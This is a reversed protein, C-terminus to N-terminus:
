DDWLLAKGRQVDADGSNSLVEEYVQRFGQEILERVVRQYAEDALEENAFREVVRVVPEADLLRVARKITLKPRERRYTEIQCQGRDMRVSASRGFPEVFDRRELGGVRREKLFRCYNAEADVEVYEDLQREIEREEGFGLQVASVMAEDVSGERAALQQLVAGSASAAIELVLARHEPFSGGEIAGRGFAVLEPWLLELVISALVLRRNREADHSFVIPYVSSTHQGGGVLEDFVPALDLVMERRGFVRARRLGGGATAQGRGRLGIEARELDCYFVIRGGADVVPTEAQLALKVRDRVTEIFEPWDYDVVRNVFARDAAELEDLESALRAGGGYEQRLEALRRRFEVDKERLVELQRRLLVDM